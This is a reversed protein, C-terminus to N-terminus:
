FDDHVRWVHGNWERVENLEMLGDKARKFATRAASDSVGSTLGHKDCLARWRSVHVVKRDLPYDEGTKTEGHKNLADRLAQMAVETKGKLPKRDPKPPAAADVVASTVPDGDKDKGLTVSRLKFYLAKPAEQDRQKRSLIEGKATVQIENDVAARLASSGRAGRGEDKGTHHILMVHADTWQRILDCNRIFMAVDKAANEDGAGMSRALTDVVILAPDDFPLVDCLALADGNGHLDVGIPLLTFPATALKPKDQKIAALRNRVGAGGENAIYLVPGGNVKLGRWPEDAAIHIAIDLAVFTKGTNSPGYVVSLCGRDLWGKIMYNCSLVPEIESLNLLRSEFESARSPNPQLKVIAM